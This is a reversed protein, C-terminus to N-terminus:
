PESGEGTKVSADLGLRETEMERVTSRRVKGADDRLTEDVIRFSRPIKYRVLRDTLFEVLDRETLDKPGEVVAHVRQGLDGDPLGVVVAGNVRPHEVLVAEVEAPYINAGGAVIMDTRRDSIYLYGDDDLWGMDGLSEWGDVTRAEAGIYRYTRKRNRMFIEGVEGPQLLENDPGLIRISGDVPRGVSGRHSLWELGTINTSVQQETGGYLEFVKEPGLLNIWAEKLWPPCPAAFHWLVQLSSLDYTSPNEELLRWMRLMMTPVVSVWDIRYKEIAELAAAADFKPLLVVHVGGLIGLVSSIFPANHYLPGPVLSVGSDRMGNLYVMTPDIKGPEASVILKPTGTSGGSTPAKLSPSVRDPLVPADSLAPDPSFMAPVCRYRRHARPDVGVVLSPKALALISEQEPRTLRPSIPQPIAGLKWIAFVAAFYEISNPLAITVFDGHRVGLARYARALRNSQSELNRYTLTWDGCTVAPVDPRTEALHRLVRGIPQRKPTQIAQAESNATKPIEEARATGFKKVM